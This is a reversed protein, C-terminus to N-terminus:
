SAGRSAFLAMVREVAERDACGGWSENSGTIAQWVQEYTPTLDATPLVLDTRALVARAAYLLASSMPLQTVDAIVQALATVLDDPQQQEPM